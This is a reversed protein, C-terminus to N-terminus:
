TPLDGTPLSQLLMEIMWGAQQHTPVVVHVYPEIGDATRVEVADAAQRLVGALTPDTLKVLDYKM